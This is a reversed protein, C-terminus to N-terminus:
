RGGGPAHDPPGLGCAALQAPHPERPPLQAGRRHDRRCHRVPRRALGSAEAGRGAMAPSDSTLYTRVRAIPLDITRSMGIELCADRTLGVTALPTSRDTM